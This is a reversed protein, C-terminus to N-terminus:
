RRTRASSPRVAAVADGGIAAALCRTIARQAAPRSLGHERVLRHWFDFSLISECTAVAERHDGAGLHKRLLQALFSARQARGRASLAALFPVLREQRWVLWPEFHRHQQDLACVLAELATALDPATLIAEAPFVPARAAVHGTCGAMLDDQTPFHAHVTPLSVGAVRAIDAYSTALAGKEAHLAVAAAAIRATLEAQRRLRLTSDYSRPAM